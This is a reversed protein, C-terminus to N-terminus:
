TWRARRYLRSPRRLSSCRAGVTPLAQLRADADVVGDPTSTAVPRPAHDDSTGWPLGSSCGAAAWIVLTLLLARGAGNGGLRRVIAHRTEWVRRVRDM